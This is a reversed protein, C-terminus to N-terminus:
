IGQPPLFLTGNKIQIRFRKFLDIGIIGDVNLMSLAKGLLNPLVGFVQNHTEIEPLINVDCRYTNTSFDGIFPHFDEVEGESTIGSVISENIYSTPAGTDVIMRVNRNNVMMEIAILGQGFSGMEFQKLKRLYVADDDVLILGCRIDILIPYRNIIDMGLLGDINIGVKSSLYNSSVGTLSTNVAIDEGCLNIFGSSHFSAPSGTDLLLNQENYNIIIHDKILNVNYIKSM